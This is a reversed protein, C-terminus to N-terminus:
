FSNGLYVQHSANERLTQELFIYLKMNNNDCFIVLVNLIFTLIIKVKANYIYNFLIFWLYEWHFKIESVDTLCFVNNM